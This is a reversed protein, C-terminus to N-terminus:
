RSIDLVKEGLLLYIYIHLVFQYCIEGVVFFQSILFSFYTLSINKRVKEFTLYYRETDTQTHTKKSYVM